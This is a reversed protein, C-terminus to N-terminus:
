KAEEQNHKARVQDVADIASLTEGREEAEAMLIHAQHAVQADTIGGSKQQGPVPGSARESYDVRNPLASLLADLIEKPSKKVVEASEGDDKPAAFEVEDAPLAVFLAALGAREAPLVRGAEVHDALATNAAALDAARQADAEMKEVAKEREELADQQAALEAERAKLEEEKKKDPDMTPEQQPKPTNSETSEALDGAALEVTEYDESSFQTPALGPVAPARGGLWGVHRLQGARLAISRGTYAGAEVAARFAPMIDRFKAQLRDGTRRLAEVYGYAPADTKPHGVVMPVPDDAGFKAVIQDFLDTTITVDRGMADRWTGVRCVDIWGDLASM